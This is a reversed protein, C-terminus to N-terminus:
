GPLQGRPTKVVLRDLLDDAAYYGPGIHYKGAKARKGPDALLKAQKDNSFQDFAAETPVFITFPGPGSLSEALGAVSEIGNGLRNYSREARATELINAM